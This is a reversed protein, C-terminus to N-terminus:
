MRSSLMCKPSQYFNRVRTSVLQGLIGTWQIPYGSNDGLINGPKAQLKKLYYDMRKHLERYWGRTFPSGPKCIYAGNGLLVYWNRKLAIGLQGEVSVAGVLGFERYGIIWKDFFM